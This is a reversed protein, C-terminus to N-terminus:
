VAGTACGPFSRPTPPGFTIQPIPEDLLRGAELTRLYYGWRDTVSPSNEHILIVYPLLFGRYCWPPPVDGLRPLRHTQRFFAVLDLLQDTPFLAPQATM